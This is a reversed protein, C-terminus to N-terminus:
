FVGIDRESERAREDEIQDRLFSSFKNLTNMLFPNSTSIKSIMDLAFQIYGIKSGCWSRPEINVLLQGVLTEEQAFREFIYLAIGSWEWIDEVKRLPFLVEALLKAREKSNCWATLYEDPLASLVSKRDDNKYNTEAELVQKLNFKERWDGSGLAEM